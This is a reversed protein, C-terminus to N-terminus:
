INRSFIEPRVKGCLMELSCKSEETKTHERKVRNTKKTDPAMAHGGLESILQAAKMTRLIRWPWHEAANQAM